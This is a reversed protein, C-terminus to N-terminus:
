IARVLNICVFSNESILDALEAESLDDYYGSFIPIAIVIYSIISGVYAFLNMSLDLPLLWCFLRKQAAVLSDLDRDLRSRELQAAGSFAVPESSLRTQVHRFRFVGERREMEAAANTVPSLLLLNVASGLLFFIFM